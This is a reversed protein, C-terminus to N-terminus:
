NSLCLHKIPAINIKMDDGSKVVVFFTKDRNLYSGDLISKMEFCSTIM